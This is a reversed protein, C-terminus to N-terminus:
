RCRIATATARYPGRLSLTAMFRAIADPDLQLKVSRVANADAALAKGKLQMVFEQMELNNGFVEIEKVIEQEACPAEDMYVRVRDSRALLSIYTEEKVSYIFRDSSSGGNGDGTEASAQSVLEISHHGEYAEELVVVDYNEVDLSCLYSLQFWGKACDHAFIHFGRGCSGGGFELFLEEINDDNLDLLRANTAKYTCEHEWGVRAECNLAEIIERPLLGESLSAAEGACAESHSILLGLVITLTLCILCRRWSWVGDAIIAPFRM